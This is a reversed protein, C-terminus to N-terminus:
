KQAKKDTHLPNRLHVERAIGTPQVTLDLRKLGTFRWSGEGKLFNVFQLRRSIDDCNQCSIQQRIEQTAFLFNTRVMCVFTGFTDSSTTWMPPQMVFISGVLCVLADAVTQNKLLRLITPSTFMHGNKSLTIYVTTNGLFGIVTMFFQLKDVISKYKNGEGTLTENEMLHIQSQNLNSFMLYEM